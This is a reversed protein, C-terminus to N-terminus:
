INPYRARVEELVLGVQDFNIPTFGKQTLKECLALWKEHDWSNNNESVFTELIGTGALRQINEEATYEPAKSVEATGIKSKSAKRM